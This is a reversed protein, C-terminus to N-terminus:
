HQGEVVAGASIVRLMDAFVDDLSLIGVIDLGEVV